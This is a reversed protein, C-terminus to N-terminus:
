QRKVCLLGLTTESQNIHCHRLLELETLNPKACTFAPCSLYHRFTEKIRQRGAVGLKDRLEPLQALTLIAMSLAVVTGRRSTIPVRLATEETTIEAVGHHHFSIVPLGVAMAELVVNGSTDRLSTFVFADHQSMFDTIQAKPVRGQWTVSKEVALSQILRKLPKEEPGGGVITLTMGPFKRIARAFARIALEM